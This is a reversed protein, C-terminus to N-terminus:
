NPTSGFDPSKECNKPAFGLRPDLHGLTAGRLESFRSNKRVTNPITLLKIEIKMKVLGSILVGSLKIRVPLPGDMFSTM